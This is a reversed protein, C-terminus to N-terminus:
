SAPTAVLRVTRIPEHVAGARGLHSSYLILEAARWPQLEPLSPLAPLPAGERARARALTLHPKLERQEPPLGAARCEAEVRDALARIADGGARTGIWVVRALRGRSFTGLEGLAVEFPPGVAGDLRDAIAEVLGREVSGIFRVTLHLNGAVSWRFQPAEAPCSELFRGLEQRQPEPVPLGFFARLKLPDAEELAGQGM